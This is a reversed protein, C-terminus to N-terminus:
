GAKRVQLNCGLGALAKMHRVGAPRRPGTRRNPTGDPNYRSPWIEHAPTGIVAALIKEGKPFPRSKVCTLASSGSTYGLELALQRMSWGAKRIAAQVDEWHWDKMPAPNKEANTTAM